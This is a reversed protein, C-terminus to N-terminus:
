VEGLERSRRLSHSVAFGMFAGLCPAFPLFYVYSSMEDSPSDPSNQSPDSPVYWIQFRTGISGIDACGGGGEYESGGVSFQYSCSDHNRLDRATMTAQTTAAAHHLASARHIDPWTLMLVFSGLILAGAVAGAVDTLRPHRIMWWAIVEVGGERRDARSCDLPWGMSCM